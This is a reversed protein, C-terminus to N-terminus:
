KETNGKSGEGCVPGLVLRALLGQAAQPLQYFDVAYGIVDRRTNGDAMVHLIRPRAPKKEAM